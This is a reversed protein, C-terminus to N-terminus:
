CDREENKTQIQRSNRFIEEYIACLHPSYETAQLNAAHSAVFKLRQEERSRDLVPLSNKSKYEGIQQAVKFREILLYVIQLDLADIEERLNELTKEKFIM